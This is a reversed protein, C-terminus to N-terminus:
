AYIATDSGGAGDIRDNGSGGTIQNDEANGTLTRNGGSRAVLNEVENALTYSVGTTLMVTDNGGGDAEIVQDANTASNDVYYTDDGAGGEMTDGLPTGRATIVVNDIYLNDGNDWNGEALFRIASHSGIQDGTLTATFTGNGSNGDGLVGEL